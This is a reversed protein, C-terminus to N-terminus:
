MICTLKGIRIGTQHSANMSTTLLASTCRPDEEGVTARVTEYASVITHFYFCGASQSRGQLCEIMAACGQVLRMFRDSDHFVTM